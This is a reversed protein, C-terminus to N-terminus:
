AAAAASISRACHTANLGAVDLLLALQAVDAFGHQCLDLGFVATCFDHHARSTLSSRMSRMM